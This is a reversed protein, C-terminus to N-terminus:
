DAGTIPAEPHLRNHTKIIDKMIHVAIGQGEDYVDLRDSQADLRVEHELVRGNLHKYKERNEAVYIQFPVSGHDEIRKIVTAMTDQTAALTQVTGKDTGNGNKKARNERILLWVVFLLVSATPGLGKLLELLINTEDM